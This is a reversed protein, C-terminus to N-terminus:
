QRVVAINAAGTQLISSVASALGVQAVDIFNSEGLQVITARKGVGTQLLNIWNDGVSQTIAAVVDPGTQSVMLVSDAATSQDVDPARPLATLSSQIQAVRSMADLRWALPTQVQQIRAADVPPTSIQEIHLDLAEATPAGMAGTVAALGIASWRM